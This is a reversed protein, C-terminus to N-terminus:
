PLELIKVAVQWCVEIRGSAPDFRGGAPGLFLAWFLPPATGLARLWLPLRLPVEAVIM